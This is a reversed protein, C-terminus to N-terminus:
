HRYDPGHQPEAGSLVARRLRQGQHQVTLLGPDPVGIAPGVVHRSPHRLASLRDPHEPHSVACQAREGSWGGHRHTWGRHGLGSPAPPLLDHHRRHGPVERTWDQHCRPWHLSVPQDHHLHGEQPQRERARGRQRDRQLLPRHRSRPQSHRSRRPHARRGPRWRAGCPRRRASRRYRRQLEDQRRSGRLGQLPGRCRRAAHLCARGKAAHESRHSGSGASQRFRPSAGTAAARGRGTRRAARRIRICARLITADATGTGRKIGPARDAVGLTCAASSVAVGGHYMFFQAPEEARALGSYCLRHKSRIAFLRAARARGHRMKATQRSSGAHSRGNRQTDCAALSARSRLVHM